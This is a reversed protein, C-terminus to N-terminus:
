HALLRLARSPRAVIKRLRPERGASRNLQLSFLVSHGAKGPHIMFKERVLQVRLLGPPVPEANLKSVLRLQHEELDPSLVSRNMGVGCSSVYIRGPLGIM